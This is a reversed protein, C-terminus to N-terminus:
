SEEFSNMSLLYVFLYKFKSVAILVFNNPEVKKFLPVVAILVFNNPEV